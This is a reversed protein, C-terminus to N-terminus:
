KKIKHQVKKVLSLVLLYFIIAFLIGLFLSGFMIYRFISDWFYYFDLTQLMQWIHSVSLNSIEENKVNIDLVNFFYKGVHYCASLMIPLTLPNSVTTGIVAATINASFFWTFLVALFIHFGFFPSFAFFVGIAVGLAIKHPSTKLRLLPEWYSKIIKNWIKKM